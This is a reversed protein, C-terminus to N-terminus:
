DFGDGAQAQQAAAHKKRRAQGTHECRREGARGDDRPQNRHRIRMACGCSGDVVGPACYSCGKCATVGIGLCHGPGRAVRGGLLQHLPDIETLLHLPGAIVPQHGEHEGIRLPGAGLQKAAPRHSHARSFRRRPSLRTDRFLLGVAELVHQSEGPRAEGAVVPLSRLSPRCQGPLLEAAIGADLPPNQLLEARKEGDVVVLAAQPSQDGSSLRISGNAGCRQQRDLIPLHRFDCSLEDAAFSADDLQVFAQRRRQAALNRHLIRQRAVVALSIM